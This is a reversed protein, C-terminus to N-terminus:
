QFKVPVLDRATKEAKAPVRTSKGSIKRVGRYSKTDNSKAKSTKADIKLLNKTSINAVAGKIEPKAVAKAHVKARVDASAGPLIVMGPYGAQNGYFINDGNDYTLLPVTLTIVDDEFTSVMSADTSNLMEECQQTINLNNIDAFYGVWDMIVFEEYSAMVFGSSQPYMGAYKGAVNVRVNRYVEAHNFGAATIPNSTGYLSLLQYMDEGEPLDTGKYKQVPINYSWEFPNLLDDGIQYNPIVWGDVFEAMGLDQWDKPNFAEGVTFVQADYLWPEGNNNRFVNVVTYKGPETVDFNSTFLLTAPRSIVDKDGAFIKDIGDQATGDKVLVADVSSIIDTPLEFSTHLRTTTEDKTFQGSSVKNFILDLSEYIDIKKGYYEYSMTFYSTGKDYEPIYYVMSLTFMGTNKNYESSNRYQEADINVGKEQLYLVYNYIDAVYLPGYDFYTYGMYQPKVEVPIDSKANIDECTIELDTGYGWNELIWTCKDPNEPDVIPENFPIYDFGSFYGNYMYAYSDWFIDKQKADCVFETSMASFSKGDLYEPAYYCLALSLINGQAYSTDELITSRIGRPYEGLVETFYTDIDSVWIPGYQPHVYGTNQVPIDLGLGDNRIYALLPNCKEGWNSIYYAVKYNDNDFVPGFSVSVGTDVNDFLASHIFVSIGDESDPTQNVPIEDVTTWSFEDVDRPDILRETGDKFDIKMIVTKAFVVVTALIAIAFLLRKINKM